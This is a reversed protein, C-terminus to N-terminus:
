DHDNSKPWLAQGLRPRQFRANFGDNRPATAVFCDLRHPPHSSDKKAESQIANVPSNEHRITWTGLLRYGRGAETKLIERDAGLARRVATIHAHLTNEEILVGPWVRDIIEYKNVLEGNAQVLIELIEFARGGLPAVVGRRLLERRVLDIEWDGSEYVALRIQTPM